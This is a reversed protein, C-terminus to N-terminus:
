SYHVDMSAPPTKVIAPRERKQAPASSVMVRVRIWSRFEALKVTCRVSSPPKFFSVIKVLKLEIEIQRSRIM